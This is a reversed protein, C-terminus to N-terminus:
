IRCSGQCRGSCSSGIAAYNLISGPCANTFHCFPYCWAVSIAHEKSIQRVETYFNDHAFWHLAQAITICDIGQDSLGPQEAKAVSYDIKDNPEAMGLGGLGISVKHAALAHSTLLKVLM